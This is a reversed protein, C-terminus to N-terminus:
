LCLSIRNGRENVILRDDHRANIQGLNLGVSPNFRDQFENGFSVFIDHCTQISDLLNLFRDHLAAHVGHKRTTLRPSIGRGPGQMM